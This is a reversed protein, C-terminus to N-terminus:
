NEMSITMNIGITNAEFDALQDTSDREEFSVFAGITLYRLLEYEASLKYALRKDERSSTFVLEDKGAGVNAIIQTRETLDHTIRAGYTTRLFGGTEELSSDVSERRAEVTLTTYTNISWTLEGDYALGSIDRLRELEYDREQYGVNVDGSIKNTFDWSIGTRYRNYTNDLEYNDIVDYDFKTTIGEIYIRTKPAIRYAFSATVQDNTFNLFNLANTTYEKDTRRYNLEVRGISSESGYAIGALIFNQDFKNYESIDLQIRNISGPEEHDKSFGAEFRSSFRLTHELDISAKLDHDTYDANDQESFKAYDGNYTLQFRHKGLGGVAALEPRLRLYTDSQALDDIVRYINDDHVISADASAFLGPKENSQAVANTSLVAMALTSLLFTTSNRMGM